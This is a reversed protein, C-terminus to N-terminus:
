NQISLLGESSPTNRPRGSTSINDLSTIPWSKRSLRTGQREHTAQGFPSCNCFSHSNIKIPVNLNTMYILNKEYKALRESHLLATGTNVTEFLHKMTHPSDSSVAWCNGPFVNVRTGVPPHFHPMEKGEKMLKNSCPPCQSHQPQPDKRHKQSSSQTRQTKQMWGSSGPSFRWDEGKRDKLWISPITEWRRLTRTSRQFHVSLFSWEGNKM